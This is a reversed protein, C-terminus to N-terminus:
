RNVTEVAADLAIKNRGLLVLTAGARAYASAIALGIGSASGTVMVRRGRFDWQLQPM